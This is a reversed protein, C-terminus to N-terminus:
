RLKRWPWGLVGYDRYPGDYGVAAFVLRYFLTVLRWFADVYDQDVGSIFKGHAGQHRITEWARVETLDIVGRRTLELLRSKASTAAMSSIRGRLRRKTEDSIALSELTSQALALEERFRDDSQGHDAFALGLVAEVAVAVDLAHADLPARSGELACKSAVSLLPLADDPHPAIQELFRSFLNLAAQCEERIGCTFAVPPQMRGAQTNPPAGTLWSSVGTGEHREVATWGLRRALVFGLTEHVRRELDPKM